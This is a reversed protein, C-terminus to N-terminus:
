AGAPRRDPALFEHADIWSRFSAVVERLYLSTRDTLDRLEQVTIDEGCEVFSMTGHALNNRLIKIFELAGKENRFHRKIGSKASVSIQLSLGMRKTISDIKNDDWNGGGGREIQFSSIPHAQVLEECLDFACQLRHDFNLDVHTRAVYRVWERRLETSLDRPLWRNGDAAAITVADICQTITAEILNYLQLYVSSYLIKQQQPTITPGTAGVRPPGSRVQDELAQLLDLYSHIEQLRDEFIQNLSDM